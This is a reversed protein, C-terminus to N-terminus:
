LAFGIVGSVLLCDSFVSRSVTSGIIRRAATELPVGPQSMFVDKAYRNGYFMPESRRLILTVSALVMKMLQRVEEHFRKSGFRVLEHLVM